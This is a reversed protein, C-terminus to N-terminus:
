FDVAVAKKEWLIPEATGGEENREKRREEERWKRERVKEGGSAINYRSQRGHRTKDREPLSPCRCSPTPSM